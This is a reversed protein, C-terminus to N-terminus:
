PVIKEVDEIRGNEVIMKLYALENPRYGAKEAYGSIGLIRTKLFSGTCVYWRQHIDIYDSTPDAETYVQSEKEGDDIMGLEPEPASILGKHAHGCSMSACDQALPALVAKLRNENAERRKKPDPNNSNFAWSGHTAYHKFYTRGKTGTFTIKCSSTGYPIGLRKCIYDRTINGIYGVSGCHNGEIEVIIKNRIPYYKEVVAEAQLLVTHMEPKITEYDYRKDRHTIGEILDGHLILKGRPDSGVTEILENEGDEHHLLSGEHADGGLYINCDKRIYQPILQM